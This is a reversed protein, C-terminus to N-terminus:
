PTGAAKGPPHLDQLMPNLGYWEEDNVYQLIARSDILERFAMDNDKTRTVAGTARVEEVLPWHDLRMQRAYERQGEKKARELDKEGIPLGNTIIAERVLTMLESPQGGSLRILQEVVKDDKFVLEPKAYAALLRANIVERFRAVGEPYPQSSQPPRLAVKTMPVVPVHGGYSSRITQEQHSYALSLPMTYIVHCAFATLQAARHVFLYEATTCPASGNSGGKMGDHPRVVMKDLDDVLVVLGSYGRKGLELIAEGIVDNAARILNDTDPELLKRVKQRADPSSKLKAAIKAFGAALEIKDFDVETFLFDKLRGPLSKFYGPKLQIGAGSKLQEAMQRVLGILIEPFDIDNRDIDEDARCFVVFYKPDESELHKKLRYLETSKGAGRDGALVQCTPKEALYIKKELRHVIHANGRAADLDVYLNAHEPTLPVPNFAHYVQQILNSM